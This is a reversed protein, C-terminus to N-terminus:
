NPIKNVLLLKIKLLKLLPFRPKSCDPAIQKFDFVTKDIGIALLNIEESKEV